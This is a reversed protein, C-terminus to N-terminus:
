QDLIGSERIIRETDEFGGGLADFDAAGAELADLPPLENAPEVGAALPYEFTEAAFYTQATPSLLYRILEEGLDKDDSSAMVTAATILVVSGIDDPAFDHNLARHDDGRAAVEQYNYYHNVLGMDIEGRGAAEVIARNDPYFVAGNAVMDDLWQTAVDDGHEFRFVTFWDEFSANTAPLAVRGEYRPDTLDFVSTPLESEDVNDVNYVLVRKRGSFGAWSGDEAQYQEDVLALTEGSLTALLGQGDLFGVPGPSRSLFVDAESRDGEEALLLALDTSEGFRLRVDIGTEREFDELIPVILNETRGSYITVTEDDDGGGGCGTAVVAAAAVLAATFPRSRAPV